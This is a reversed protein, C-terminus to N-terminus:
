DCNNAKLFKNLEQEYTLCSGDHESKEIHKAFSVFLERQQSASNILLTSKAENNLIAIVCELEAKDKNLNDIVEKYAEPYRGKLGNSNENIKCDIDRICSQIIEKAREM